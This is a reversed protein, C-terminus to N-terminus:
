CPRSCLACLALRAVWVIAAPGYRHVPHAGRETRYIQVTSRTYVVGTLMPHHITTLKFMFVTNSRFLRIIWLTFKYEAAIATAVPYAYRFALATSSTANLQQIPFFLHLVYNSPVSVGFRRFLHRPRCYTGVRSSRQLMKQFSKTDYRVTTPRKSVLRMMKILILYRLCALM